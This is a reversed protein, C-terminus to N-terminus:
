IRLLLHFPFGADHGSVGSFRNAGHSEDAVAAGALGRQGFGQQEFGARDGGFATNAAGNVGMTYTPSGFLTANNGHGSHDNADGALPYWAVLGNTIDTTTPSPNTITQSLVSSASGAFVSDGCYVATIAHPSGSAALAATSLAALGAGNLAASGLNNSGDFFGVSGTPTGTGSAPAM